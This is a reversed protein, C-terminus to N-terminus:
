ADNESNQVEVLDISHVSAGLQTIVAEIPGLELSSGAIELRVTQTEEDMEEVKICVRYDNGLLAIEQCFEVADPQHPKLVDLVLRTVTVM